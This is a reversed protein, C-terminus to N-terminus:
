QWITESLGEFSEQFSKDGAQIASDFKTEAEDTAGANTPSMGGFIEAFRGGPKEQNDGEDPKLGNQEYQKDFATAQDPERRRAEHYLVEPDKSVGAKALEMMAPEWDKFDKFTESLKVLSQQVSAQRQSAAVDQVGDTVPKMQTQIVKTFVGTMHAMLEGNTMAEIDETSPGAAPASQPPKAAASAAAEQQATAGNAMNSVLTTVSGLGDTLAKIADQNEKQGAAIAGFANVIQDLTLGEPAAEKKKGFLDM